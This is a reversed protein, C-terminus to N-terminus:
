YDVPMYDMYLNMCKKTREKIHEDFNLKGVFTLGLYKMTKVRSIKTENVLIDYDLIKQNYFKIYNIKDLNIKIKWQKMYEQTELLM